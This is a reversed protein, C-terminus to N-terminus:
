EKLNFLNHKDKELEIWKIIPNGKFGKKWIFWAYAVASSKKFYEEEGNLAVHQRKSYIYIIKPPNEKFLSMRKTSELFTLKLFMAIKNGKPILELGHEVFEKALSYPPNTIIDGNFNINYTLFDQIITNKLDRDILDIKTVNHEYKELVKSMHGEGVAPELIDKNFTEIALLDEVCHPDTAYYDNVQRSTEAYVRCGNTTFVNKNRKVKYIFADSKTDNYENM